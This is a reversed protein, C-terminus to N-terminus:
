WIGMDIVSSKNMERLLAILYPLLLKFVEYSIVGNSIKFGKNNLIM